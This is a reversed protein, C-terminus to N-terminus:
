RSARDAALEKIRLQQEVIREAYAPVPSRGTQWRWVTRRDVGALAAVDVQRLGARAMQDAFTM